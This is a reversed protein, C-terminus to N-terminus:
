RLLPSAVLAVAFAGLVVAGIRSVLGIAGQDKAFRGLMAGGALWLAAVMAALLQFAILYLPILPVGIPIIGLAFIIAKPNLM